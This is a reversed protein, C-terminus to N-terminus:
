CVCLLVCTSPHLKLSQASVFATQPFTSPDPSSNTWFFLGFGWLQNTWTWNLRELWEQVTLTHWLKSMGPQSEAELSEKPRNHDSSQDDKPLWLSVHSPWSALLHEQLQSGTNPLYPTLPNPTPPNCYDESHAKARDGLQLNVKLSFLKQLSSVTWVLTSEM